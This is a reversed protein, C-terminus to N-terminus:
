IKPDNKLQASIVEKLKRRIRALKSQVAKETTQAHDAIAQIPSREFYRSRLLQQEDLPLLAVADDLLGILEEGDATNPLDNCGFDVQQRFRDLFAFYRRRKKSEDSLASRALVTLWSWFAEESIFPRIHRVVRTFTGQLAEHITGEKGRTVVWLYRELRPRYASYFLRYASEDGKSLQRTLAEISISLKSADGQLASRASEPHTPFDLFTITESGM